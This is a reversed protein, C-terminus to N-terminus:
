LHHAYEMMASVADIPCNPREWVREFVDFTSSDSGPNEYYDEILECAVDVSVATDFPDQETM